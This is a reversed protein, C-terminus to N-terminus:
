TVAIAIKENARYDGEPHQRADEPLRLAGRADSAVRNTARADGAGADPEVCAM